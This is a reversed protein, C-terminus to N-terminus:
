IKEEWAFDVQAVRTAGTQWSPHTLLLAIMKPYHTIVDANDAPSSHLTPRLPLTAQRAANTIVDETVMYLHDELGIYDGADLVKTSAQTWGDTSLNSGLQGSGSVLANGPTGGEGVFFAGTSDGAYVNGTNDGAFWTPFVANLPFPQDLDHMFFEGFMGVRSFWAKMSNHSAGKLPMATAVGAWHDSLGDNFNQTRYSGGFSRVGAKYEMLHWKLGVYSINPALFETM